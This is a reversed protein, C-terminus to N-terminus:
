SEPQTYSQIEVIRASAPRSVFQDLWDAMQRLRAGWSRIESAILSDLEGTALGELTARSKDLDDLASRGVKMFEVGTRKRGLEREAMSIERRLIELRRAMAQEEASEATTNSNQTSLVEYQAQLVALAQETRQLQDIVQPDAVSKEVEVVKEVIREVPSQSKLRAIEDAYQQRTDDTAMLQARLDDITDVCLLFLRLLTGRSDLFASGVFM